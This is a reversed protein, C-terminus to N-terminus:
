CNIACIVALGGMILPPLWFILGREELAKFLVVLEIGM